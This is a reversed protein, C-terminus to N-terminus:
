RGSEAYRRRSAESTQFLDASAPFGKRPSSGRRREYTGVEQPVSATRRMAVSRRRGDSWCRARRRSAIVDRAGLLSGAIAAAAILGVAALRTRTVKM